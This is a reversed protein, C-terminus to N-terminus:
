FSNMYWGLLKLYLNWQQQLCLSPTKLNVDKFCPTHFCPFLRFLLSITSLLCTYEVERGGGWLHCHSHGTWFLHFHSDWDWAWVTLRSCWPWIVFLFVGGECSLIEKALNLSMSSNLLLIQHICLDANFDEWNGWGEWHHFFTPLLVPVLDELSLLADVCPRCGM